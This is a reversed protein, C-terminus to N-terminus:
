DLIKSIKILYGVDIKFSFIDKEKPFFIQKKKNSIVKLYFKLYIMVLKIRKFILRFTEGSVM